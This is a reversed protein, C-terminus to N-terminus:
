VSGILDSNQWPQDRLYSPGTPMYTSSLPMVPERKLPLAPAPEPVGFNFHKGEAPKKFQFDSYSYTPQRQFNLESPLINSSSGLYGLSEKPRTEPSSGDLTPGVEMSKESFLSSERISYNGDEKKVIKKIKIHKGKLAKIRDSLDFEEYITNLNPHGKKEEGNMNNILLM